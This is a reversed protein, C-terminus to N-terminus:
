FQFGLTYSICKLNVKSEQYIVNSNTLDFIMIRANNISQINFGVSPLIKFKKRGIRYGINISGTTGTQFEPGLKLSKGLNIFAFPTNIKNKLYGRADIYLPLTNHNPSHYGELGTGIGLSLNPSILYSMSVRLRYAQGDYPVRIHNGYDVMGVGKLYGVEILPHIKKITQSFSNFSILLFFKIIFSLKM